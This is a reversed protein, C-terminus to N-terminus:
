LITITAENMCASEKSRKSIERLLFLDAYLSTRHLLDLKYVYSNYDNINEICLFQETQKSNYKQLIRIVKERDNKLLSIFHINNLNLSFTKNTNQDIFASLDNIECIKYVNRDM